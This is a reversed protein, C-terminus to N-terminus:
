MFQCPKALYESGPQSFTAPFSLYIRYALVTVFNELGPLRVKAWGKLENQEEEKKAKDAVNECGPLLLKAWGQLNFSPTGHKRRPSPGSGRRDPQTGSRPRSAGAARSRSARPPSSSASPRSPSSRSSTARSATWCTRRGWGPTASWCWQPLPLARGQTNRCPEALLHDGPQTFKAPLALLWFRPVM